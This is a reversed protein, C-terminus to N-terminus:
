PVNRALPSGAKDPKYATSIGYEAVNTTIDNWEEDVGVLVLTDDGVTNFGYYIRIGTCNAQALMAELKAKEFFFGRSEEIGFEERYYATLRAADDVSIDHESAM